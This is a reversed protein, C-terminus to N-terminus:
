RTKGFRGLVGTAVLEPRISVWVPALAAVLIQVRPEQKKPGEKPLLCEFGKKWFSCELWGEQPFAHVAKVRLAAIGHLFPNSCSSSHRTCRLESVPSPLGEALLAWDRDQGEVSAAILHMQKLIRPYNCGLRHKHECLTGGGSLLM